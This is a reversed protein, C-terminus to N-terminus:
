NEEVQPQADPRDMFYTIVEEFTEKGVNVARHVRESPEVWYVEGVGTRLIDTGCKRCAGNLAPGEYSCTCQIYFDQRIIFHMPKKREESCIDRSRRPSRAGRAGLSDALFRIQPKGRKPFLPDKLVQLILGALSPVFQQRHIDPMLQFAATVEESIGAQLLPEGIDKWYQSLLM